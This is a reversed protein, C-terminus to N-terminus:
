AVAIGNIQLLRELELIRAQMQAATRRSINHDKAHAHKLAPVLNETQNNTKVEDLHHVDWEPRLYGRADLAPHWPKVARLHQEMVLRHERIYGNKQRGPHGAPAPVMRYGRDMKVGGRWNHHEQGTRRTFWSAHKGGKSSMSTASGRLPVGWQRLYSFLTCHSIGVRRCIAEVSNAPDRYADIIAAKNDNLFASRNSM